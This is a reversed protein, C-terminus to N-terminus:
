PLIREIHNNPLYLAKYRELGVVVNTKLQAWEDKLTIINNFSHIIKKSQAINQIVCRITQDMQKQFEARKCTKKNTKWCLRKVSSYQPRSTYIFFYTYFDGEEKVQSQFNNCIDNFGTNVMKKFSKQEKESRKYLRYTEKEIWDIFPRVMKVSAVKNKTATGTAIKRLAITQIEHSISKYNDLFEKSKLKFNQYEQGPNPIVVNCIKVFEPFLKDKEADLKTQPYKRLIGRAGCPVMINKDVIIIGSMQRIFPIVIREIIEKKFTLDGREFADKKQHRYLDRNARENCLGEHGPGALLTYSKGYKKILIKGEGQLEVLYDFRVRKFSLESPKVPEKEYIETVYQKKKEEKKNM